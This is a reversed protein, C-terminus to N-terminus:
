ELQNSSSGKHKNYVGIANKKKTRLENVCKNSLLLIEENENKVINFTEMIKRGKNEVILDVIRDVIIVSGDIVKFEKHTKEKKNSGLRHLLKTTIVSESAGSDFVAQIQVNNINVYETDLE